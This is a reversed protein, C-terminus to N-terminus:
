APIVAPGTRFFRLLERWDAATAVIAFLFEAATTAIRLLLSLCFLFAWWSDRWALPNFLGLSDSWDFGTSNSLIGDHIRLMATQRFGDIAAARVDTPLLVALCGVFVVERVGLGAPAFAALHGVAFAIAWAAMVPLLVHWGDGPSLPGSVLLWVALGQWAVGLTQWLALPVLRRGPLRTRRERGVLRVVRYFIKPSAAIYLLPVFAALVLWLPRWTPLAHWLAVVAGILGIVLSGVIALGGETRGAANAQPGSAGHPRVLEMRLVVFTRGPLNRALHGASWIRMAPRPPVTAGLARVVQWWTTARFIALGGAFLLTGGVIPLLNLRGLRAEVQEWEAWVPEVVFYLVGLVITVIALRRFWPTLQRAWRNLRRRQKEDLGIIEDDVVETGGGGIRRRRTPLLHIGWKRLKKRLFRRVPSVWRTLMLNLLALAVWSVAMTVPAALTAIGVLQAVTGVGYEQLPLRAVIRDYYHWAAWMLGATVAVSVFTILGTFFPSEIPLRRGRFVHTTMRRKGPLTVLAFGVIFLPIGGPGPLLIGLIPSAIIALWGVVNKLVFVGYNRLFRTAWAEKSLEVEDGPYAVDHRVSTMDDTARPPRTTMPPAPDTVPSPLM